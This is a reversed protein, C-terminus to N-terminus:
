KQNFKEWLEPLLAVTKRTELALVRLNHCIGNPKPCLVATPMGM